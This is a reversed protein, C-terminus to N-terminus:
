YMDAFEERTIWDVNEIETAGDLVRRLEVVLPAVESDTTRRGLLARVVGKCIDPQIIWRDAPPSGIPAWHVFVRYATDVIMVDFTWGAEGSVPKGICIAGFTVLRKVLFNAFEKGPPTAEDYESDPGEFDFSTSSVVAITGRSPEITTMTSGGDIM